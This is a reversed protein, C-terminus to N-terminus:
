QGSASVNQVAVGLGVTRPARETVDFALLRAVPEDRGDRHM